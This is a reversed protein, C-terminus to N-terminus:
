IIENGILAGPVNLRQDERSDQQNDTELDHQDAQECVQDYGLIAKSLFFLDMQAVRRLHDRQDSTLSELDEAQEPRLAASM